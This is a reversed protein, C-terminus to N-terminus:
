HSISKQMPHKLMNHPTTLTTTTLQDNSDAILPGIPTDPKAQSDNALYGNWCSKKKERKLIWKAHLELRWLDIKTHVDM